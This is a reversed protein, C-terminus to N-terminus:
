EVGLWDRVFADEQDPGIGLWGGTEIEAAIRPDNRFWPGEGAAGPNEESWIETFRDTEAWETESLRRIRQVQFVNTAGIEPNEILLGDVEVEAGCYPALDAAAGSFVPQANKLPMVMVGDEIRILAMQRGAGCVATCYGALDCLADVVRAEFRAKAEGFLGWESAESGESFDQALAPSAILALTLVSRM